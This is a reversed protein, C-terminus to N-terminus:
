LVDRILYGLAAAEASQMATHAVDAADIMASARPHDTSGRCASIIIVITPFQLRGICTMVSLQLNATLPQSAVVQHQSLNM